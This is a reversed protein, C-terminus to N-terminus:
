ERPRAAPPTECPRNAQVWNRRQETTMQKWRTKLARRQEPALGQMKAYLARMQERQERNMGHWRQMGHHARERQEPTMERWRQAHQLMRERQDPEANWRDRIPTILQERRAQDLQEWAPLPASPPTALGPLGVAMLALLAAVRCWHRTPATSM